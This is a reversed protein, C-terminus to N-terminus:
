DPDSLGDPINQLMAKQEVAKEINERFGVKFINAHDYSWFLTSFGKKPLSHM